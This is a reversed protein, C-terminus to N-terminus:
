TAPSDKLEELMSEIEAFTEGRELHSSIWVQKGSPDLGGGLSNAARLLLDCTVELRQDLEMSLLQITESNFGSQQVADIFLDGTLVPLEPLPTPVYPKEEAIEKALRVLGRDGEM